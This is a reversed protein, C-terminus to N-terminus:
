NAGDFSLSPFNQSGPDTVLALESGPFTGTQSVVRGHLDWNTVSQQTEPGPDWPWVALYNTGDFAVALPNQDVSANQGVQFPSGASGNGSIFEGYAQNTNGQNGNNSQWVVLYNTNGFAAAASNGNGQQSSILFQPGSLSGAPTVIQGYFNNNDEMVALFNTGDSALARPAGVGA